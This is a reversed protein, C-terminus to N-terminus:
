RFSINLKERVKELMGDFKWSTKILYDSVGNQLSEAIKDEDSLNTLVIVPIDEGQETQRLRKLMEIGDMVPMALDLLILDPKEDLAKQLGVQGNEATIIDFGEDKFRERLVALMSVDDEVILIKKKNTTPM